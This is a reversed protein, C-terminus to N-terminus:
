SAGQLSPSDTRRITGWQLDNEALVCHLGFALGDVVAEEIEGNIAHLIEHLLTIEKQAYTLDEDIYITDSARDCKGMSNPEGLDQYKRTDVEVITYTIAGIKLSRPLGKTENYSRM